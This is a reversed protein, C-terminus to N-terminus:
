GAKAHHRLTPHVDRRARAVARQCDPIGPATESCRRSIQAGIGRLGGTLGGGGSQSSCAPPSLNRIQDPQRDRGPPFFLNQVADAGHHPIFGRNDAATRRVIIDAAVPRLEPWHVAMRVADDDSNQKWRLGDRRDVLASVRGCLFVANHCPNRAAAQKLNIALGCGMDVVAPRAPGNRDRLGRGPRDKSGGRQPRQPPDGALNRAHREMQQGVRRGGIRVSRQVKKSIQGFAVPKPLHLPRSVTKDSAGATNRPLCTVIGPAHNGPCQDDIAPAAHQCHTVPHVFDAVTDFGGKTIHRPKPYESEAFLANRCPVAGLM